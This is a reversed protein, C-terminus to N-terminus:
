VNMGCLRINFLSCIKNFLLLCYTSISKSVDARTLRDDNRNPPGSRFGGPGSGGGRSLGGSGGSGGGRSAGTGVSGGGRPPGGGRRGGRGSDNVNRGGRNM